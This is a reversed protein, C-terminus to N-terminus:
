QLAGMVWMSWMWRWAWFPGVVRVLAWPRQARHLRALSARVTVGVVVVLVLVVVVRAVVPVVVRAVVPVVGWVVVQVVGFSRM